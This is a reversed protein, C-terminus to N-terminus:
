RRLLEAMLRHDARRVVSGASEGHRASAWGFSFRLGDGARPLADPAAARFREVFNIATIEDTETLVVGFRTIGTRMCYDSTRTMRRLCQATERLAHRAIEVGWAEGLDLLGEVEMVVITLQRGYRSAGAVETVLVRRWLDPGDLGTLADEWGAPEPIGRVDV